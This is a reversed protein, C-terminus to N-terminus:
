QAFAGLMYQGAAIGALLLLLIFTILTGLVRFIMPAQESAFGIFHLVRGILISAGMAHLAWVPFQNMEIIALLLLLLPTYEAFNAQVRMARELDPNNGTGVSIKNRRRHGIIRVSLFVFLLAALGAYLGTIMSAG